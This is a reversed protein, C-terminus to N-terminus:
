GVFVSNVRMEPYAEYIASVLESFSLRRVFSVAKTIFRQARPTLEEFAEEGVKQGEATLRYTRFGTRTIDVLGDLEMQELDTYVWRDFPGYHYPKFNYQRGGVDDALNRDILFM